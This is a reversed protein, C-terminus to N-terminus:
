EQPVPARPARRNRWWGSLKGETWVDIIIVVLVAAALVGAVDLAIGAIDRPAQVDGQPAGAATAPATAAPQSGPVSGAAAPAAPAQATQQTMVQLM